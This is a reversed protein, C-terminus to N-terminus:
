MSQANNTEYVGIWSDIIQKNTSAAALDLWTPYFRSTKFMCVKYIPLFVEVSKRLEIVLQATCCMFNALSQVSGNFKRLDMKNISDIFPAKYAHAYMTPDTLLAVLCQASLIHENSMAWYNFRKIGCSKTSLGDFFIQRMAILKTSLSYSILTHLLTATSLTPLIYPRCCVIYQTTFNIRAYIM